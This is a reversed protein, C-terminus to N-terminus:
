KVRKCKYLEQTKLYLCNEKYGLFSSDNIKIINDSPVFIDVGKKLLNLKQVYSPTIKYLSNHTHLYLTDNLFDFSIVFASDQWPEQYHRIKEGFENYLSFSGNENKTLIQDTKSKRFSVAGPLKKWKIKSQPTYYVEQDTNILFYHRGMELQLIPQETSTSPLPIEEYLKGEGTKIIYLKYTKGTFLLGKK